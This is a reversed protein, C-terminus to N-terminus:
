GVGEAAPGDGGPVPGASGPRGGEEGGGLHARLLEEAAELGDLGRPVTLRGVTSTEVISALREVVQPLFGTGSLEVHFTSGFLRAHAESAPLREFRAAEGAAVPEIIAVLRLPVREQRFARDGEGTIRVKGVVGSGAEPVIGLLAATAPTLRVTPYTPEVTPPDVHHLVAGDDGGVTWGQQWAFATLTSKGAGSTGILVAGQGDRSIVGGHVVLEGRWALVLPLVHDFLLHQGMEEPLDRDFTVTGSPGDVEVAALGLFEIALRRDDVWHRRWVVDDARRAEVPAADPLAVRAARGVRLVRGDLPPEAERQAVRLGGSCLVVGDLVM